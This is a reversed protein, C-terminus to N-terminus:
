FKQSLFHFTLRCGVSQFVLAIVIWSSASRHASCGPSCRCLSLGKCESTDNQAAAASHEAFLQLLLSLLRTQTCCLLDCLVVEHGSILLYLFSFLSADHEQSLWLCALINIHDWSMWCQPLSAERFVVFVFYSVLGRCVDGSSASDDWAPSKPLLDPASSLTTRMEVDWTGMVLVHVPGCPEPFLGAWDVCCPRGCSQSVRVRMWSGGLASYSGEFIVKGWKIM